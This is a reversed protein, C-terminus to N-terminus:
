LSFWVIVGEQHLSCNAFDAPRFIYSLLGFDRLERLGRAPDPGICSSGMFYSDCLRVLVLM